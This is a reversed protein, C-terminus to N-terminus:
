KGAGFDTLKFTLRSLESETMEKKEGGEPPLGVMLINDPKIDVPLPITSSALSPFFVVSVPTFSEAIKM